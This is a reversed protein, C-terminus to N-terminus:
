LPQERVEPSDTAPDRRRWARAGKMWVATETTLKRFEKLVPLEIAINGNDNTRLFEDGGADVIIDAAEAQDLYGEQEFRALM